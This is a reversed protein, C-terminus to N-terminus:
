LTPISDNNVSNAKIANYDDHSLVGRQVLLSLRNLVYQNCGKFVKVIDDLDRWATAKVSEILFFVCEMTNVWKKFNADFNGVLRIELRNAHSYNLCYAHSGNGFMNLSISEDNAIRQLDSKNYNAMPRCYDAHNTDRSLVNAWFKYANADKNILYYVKLMNNRQDKATKGFLGRSVNAHMGCSTGSTLGYLPMSEIFQKFNAYHNRWFEKTGQQTPMEVSTNGSLSCDSECKVFDKPILPMLANKVVNALISSNNIGYCECEFECGVAKAPQGNPLIGNTYDDDNAYEIVRDSTFYLKREYSARHYGSIFASIPTATNALKNATAKRM